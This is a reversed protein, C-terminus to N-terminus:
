QVTFLSKMFVHLNALYKKNEMINSPLKMEGSEHRCRYLSKMFNKIMCPFLHKRRGGGWFFREELQSVMSVKVPNQRKQGRV